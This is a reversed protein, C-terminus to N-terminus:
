QAPCGTAQAAFGGSSSQLSCLQTIQCCTGAASTSIQDVRVQTYYDYSTVATNKTGTHHYKSSRYALVHDTGTNWLGWNRSTEAFYVLKRCDGLIERFALLIGPLTWLLHDIDAFDLLYTKCFLFRYFEGFNLIVFHNWFLESRQTQLWASTPIGWSFLM